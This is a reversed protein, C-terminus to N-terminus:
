EKCDGHDRFSVNPILTTNIGRIHRFTEDISTLRDVHMVSNLLGLFIMVHRPLCCHHPREVGFAKQCVLLLFVCLFSLESHM